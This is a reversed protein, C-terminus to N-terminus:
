WGEEHFSERSAIIKRGSPKELVRNLEGSGGILVM